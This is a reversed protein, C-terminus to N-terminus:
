KKNEGCWIWDHHLRSDESEKSARGRSEGRGLGALGGGGEVRELGLETNLRRKSEKIREAKEFVGVLLAKVAKPVDLDLVAADTLEGEKALDHGAVSDVKGSVDVHGSVGEVREGVADGGHDSGVGDRLLTKQLDDGKNSEELEEHHLVFGVTSLGTLERSVEAVAADVKSPVVEVLLFLEGLAGDLEVVAAGGHQSNEPEHNVLLEVRDAHNGVERDNSSKLLNSTTQLHLNESSHVIHEYQTFWTSSVCHIIM